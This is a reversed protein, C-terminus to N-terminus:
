STKLKKKDVVKNYVKMKSLGFDALKLHGDKSLLINDPKLDRHIINQKHLHQIALVLEAAYYKVLYGDELRGEEDLISRFDGGFMYEMVM